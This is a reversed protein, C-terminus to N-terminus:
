TPTTASGQRPRIQRSWQQSLRSQAPWSQRHHRRSQRRWLDALAVAMTLDSRGCEHRNAIPVNPKKNGDPLKSLSASTRRRRFHGGGNNRYGQQVPCNGTVRHLDCDGDIDGLAMSTVLQDTDTVNKATTAQTFPTTGGNKYFRSPQGIGTSTAQAASVSEIDDHTTANVRVIGGATLASQGGVFAQAQKTIFGLDVAAGIALFADTSASSAGAVSHVTTTDDAIIDVAGTIDAHSRAGLAAQTLNDTKEVNVSGAVSADTASAGGDTVNIFTDATAAKMTLSTAQM